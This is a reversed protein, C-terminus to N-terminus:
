KGVVREQVYLSPIWGVTGKENTVMYWDMGGSSVHLVPTLIAGRSVEGLKEGHLDQRSYLPSGDAKVILENKLPKVGLDGVGHTTGGSRAKPSNTARGKPTPSAKRQSSKGITRGYEGIAQAAADPLYSNLVFGLLGLVRIVRKM